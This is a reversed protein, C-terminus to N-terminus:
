RVLLFGHPTNFYLTGYGVIHSHSSNYQQNKWLYDSVINQATQCVEEVVSDSYLSGIGLAVRLENLTVFTAAL